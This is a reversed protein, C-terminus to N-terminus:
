QLDALGGQEFIPRLRDVARDNLARAAARIRTMDTAVTSKGLSFEAAIRRVSLDDRQQQTGFVGWAMTLTAMDDQISLMPLCYDRIGRVGASKCTQHGYRAHIAAVEPPPLNHVVANRVMACQGRIELGNLGGFDITSKEREQIIGRDEMMRDIMAQMQSRQTVPLIEMLFSFHLAQEVSRFIPADTM